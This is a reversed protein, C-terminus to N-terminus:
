YKKKDKLDKLIQIYSDYRMKHIFGKDVAHKIGCDPEKDHNCSPFRCIRYKEFEPYYFQLEKDDIQILDMSTFGPTDVVMGGFELKILEAHRTTHTGRKTKHSIEGTKLHVYPNIKNLISSKGAGSPGAFVSVKGVLYNKLEEIGIGLPVSTKIVNYPISNLMEVVNLYEYDLAIDIKNLCVVIQLQLYEAYILFKQLLDLNINPSKVAFVIVVQDVNAVAPRIMENKRKSINIIYGQESNHDAEIEVYDGVMPTINKLRFLGRARCEYLKEGTDVYYFGGIGKTIIGTLM